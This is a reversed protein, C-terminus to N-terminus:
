EVLPKQCRPIVKCFMNESWCGYLLAWMFVCMPVTGKGNQSLVWVSRSAAGPRLSDKRGTGFLEVTWIPVPISVWQHGDSRRRGCCHHRGPSEPLHGAPSTGARSDQQLHHQCGSGGSLVPGQWLLPCVYVCANVYVCWVCVCAVCVCICVWNSSPWVSENIHSEGSCSEIQGTISTRETTFHFSHQIFTHSNLPNSTFWFGSLMIWCFAYFFCVSFCLRSFFFISTQSSVVGNCKPKSPRGELLSNCHKQQDHCSYMESKVKAFEPFVSAWQRTIFIWKNLM